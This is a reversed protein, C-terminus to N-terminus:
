KKARRELWNSAALRWDDSAITDAMRLAQTTEGYLRHLEFARFMPGAVGRLFPETLADLEPRPGRIEGKFGEVVTKVEADFAESDLVLHAPRNCMNSYDIFGGHKSEWALWEDPKWNWTYVHLNNTFHHYRGVEVGIRAAMYEQLITFTCHNTGLMGWILDNSRNTVTIDLIQETIKWDPHPPNAGDSVVNRISFMVNLNCAVDNSKHGGGGIKLLDDEVNWMSLIARRSNPDAKLHAVLIDLQDVENRHDPISGGYWDNGKQGVGYLAKRWRRGYSGNLTKGDDSYENWQKAYHALPAVDNRGTLMYLSEYLCLFPNWDRAANFLVREKPNSYTVTVPEDIVLVDGNRSSRRVVSCSANADSWYRRGDNKFLSVLDKFATNINRTKLEM